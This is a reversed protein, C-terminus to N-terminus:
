RCESLYTDASVVRFFRGGTDTSFNLIPAYKNINVLWYM